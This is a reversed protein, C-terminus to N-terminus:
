VDKWFIQVSVVLLALVLTIGTKLTIRQGLHLYTLLTFSIIGLGFGILRQPWLAGDFANVTHRVANIFVYSIPVGMLSMIMTNQKVWENLFQGNTQYWILTQGLLFLSMGMILSKIPM